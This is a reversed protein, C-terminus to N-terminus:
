ATSPPAAAPPRRISAVIGLVAPLAAIGMVIAGATAYAANGSTLLPMGLIVADVVFHAVVCAVIGLRLFAVGFILGAVTLEIGRLYVPFIPYNSHAFAWVIAPILLALLTSRTYRKLLSIGFLRFTFEETVAAVVSVTLPVLFPLATNFIDSYPGEAPLWAGFYKRAVVYFVTLYGLILFGLAYGRLSGKAVDLDLFRGRAAAEYGALSQPAVERTLSEGATATFLVWIGYIAAVFLATILLLGVYVGWPIETPYQFKASPWLSFGQAIFLVTVTATITAAPGWRIDGRRYRAITIGLAVLVLVFMSALAAIALLQGVSQTSEFERRFGEPVHLFHRFRGVEDGQVDVTVRVAGSGAEASDPMWAVSTGVKEWTFTHDTRNDRRESSAEISGLEALDWGQGTLFSEAIALASDQELDAGAAAEEIVHAMGVVTGDVGVRVLWEEVQGPEFWRMLWSWIPVEERAWRSAEDLGLTRQLFVLAGSNGTFQVAARHADLEAGRDALVEQATALAEARTVELTVAAQPTASQYLLLAAALGALGAVALLADSLRKRDPM